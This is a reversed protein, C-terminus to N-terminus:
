VSACPDTSSSSNTFDSIKMENSTPTSSMCGPPPYFTRTHATEIAVSAESSSYQWTYIYLKLYHSNALAYRNGGVSTRLDPHRCTDEEQSSLSNYAAEQESESTTDKDTYWRTRTSRTSSTGETSPTSTRTTVLQESVEDPPTRSNDIERAM